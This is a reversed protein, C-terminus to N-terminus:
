EWDKLPPHIKIEFVRPEEVQGTNIDVAKLQPLVFKALELLYHVRWRPSLSQIDKQLTELNDHMLQNFMDRVEATSRNLSGKPRGKALSHGEEFPM